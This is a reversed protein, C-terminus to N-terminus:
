KSSNWKGLECLMGKERALKPNAHILDHHERCVARFHTVDCLLKGVKGRSHHIDKSAKRCGPWQCKPHEVHFQAKLKRYEAHQRARGKSVRRISVSIRKM